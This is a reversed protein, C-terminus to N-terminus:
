CGTRKERSRKSTTNTPVDPSTEWADRNTITREPRAFSAWWQGSPLWASARTNLTSGSIAWPRLQKESVRTGEGTPAFYSPPTDRGKRLPPFFRVRKTLSHKEFFPLIPKPPLYHHVPTGAFILDYDYFRIQSDPELETIETDQIYSSVTEYITEAVKKTNGTISSYLVLIRPKGTM